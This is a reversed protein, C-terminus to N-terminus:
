DGEFFSFYDNKLLKGRIQLKFKKSIEGDWTYKTIAIKIRVFLIGHCNRSINVTMIASMSM